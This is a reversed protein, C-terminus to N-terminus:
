KRVAGNFGLSILLGPKETHSPRAAGVVDEGTGM